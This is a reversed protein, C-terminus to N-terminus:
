SKELRQRQPEKARTPVLKWPLEQTFCPRDGRRLRVEEAFADTLASAM